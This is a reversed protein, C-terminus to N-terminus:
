NLHAYVALIAKDKVFHPKIRSDFVVIDEIRRTEYHTTNGSRWGYKM